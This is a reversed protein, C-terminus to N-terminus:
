LKSKADEISTLSIESDLGQNVISDKLPQDNTVFVGHLQLSVGVFQIDCKKVRTAQYNRPIGDVKVTRDSRLIRNIMRSLQPNTYQNSSKIQKQFDRYKKEIKENVGLRHNSQVFSSFFDISRFTENGDPDTMSDCERIIMEDIIFDTM